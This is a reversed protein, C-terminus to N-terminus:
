LVEYTYNLVTRTLVSIFVLWAFLSAAAHVYAYFSQMCVRSRYAYAHAPHTSALTGLHVGLPYTKGYELM